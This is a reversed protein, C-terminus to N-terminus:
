LGEYFKVADDLEEQTPHGKATGGILKFPGWTNFGKAKFKGKVTCHKSESIATLDSFYHENPMAATVILFVEKGEPLNEKAFNQIQKAVHEAYVGSAFGIRDYGSLDKEEGICDILKVDSHKAAIADVVKKTNGHHKSFYVIATKMKQEDEKNGDSSYWVDKM